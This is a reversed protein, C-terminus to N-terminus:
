TVLSANLLARISQSTGEAEPSVGGRGPVGSDVSRTALNIRASVELLSLSLAALYRRIFRPPGITLVAVRPLPM